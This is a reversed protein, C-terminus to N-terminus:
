KEKKRLVVTGGKVQGTDDVITTFVSSSVYGNRIHHSCSASVVIIVKVGNDLQKLKDELVALMDMVPREFYVEEENNSCIVDFMMENYETVNMKEDFGIIGYPIKEVSGSMGRPKFVTQLSLPLFM